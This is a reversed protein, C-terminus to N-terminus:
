SQSFCFSPTGQRKGQRKKRKRKKKKEKRISQTKNKYIIEEWQLQVITTALEFAKISQSSCVWTGRCFTIEYKQETGKRKEKKKM